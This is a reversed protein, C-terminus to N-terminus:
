FVIKCNREIKTIEQQALNLIEEFSNRDAEIKIKSTMFNVKVRDVGEIKSIAREMKQACNACGLEELKYSKEM